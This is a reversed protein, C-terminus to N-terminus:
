NYFFTNDLRKLQRLDMKVLLEQNQEPLQTLVVPLEHIMDELATVDKLNHDRDQVVEIIGPHVLALNINRNINCLISFHQSLRSQHM